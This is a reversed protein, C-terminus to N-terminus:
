LRGSLLRVAGGELQLINDVVNNLLDREHSIVVMMSPYSKLFNELWLTAELDLHNSPEDLLLLDPESFLLAALAVRMKWGGSYSDLPRGQMEEDFGLGVLIRAARAPATYADIAILREHLEGLRDPDACHEAEEMREAREVDGARGTEWRADWASAEVAPRLEREMRENGCALGDLREVLQPDARRGRLVLVMVLALVVFAIALAIVVTENM